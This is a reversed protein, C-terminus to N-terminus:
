ICMFIKSSLVYNFYYYVLDRLMNKLLCCDVADQVAQIKM